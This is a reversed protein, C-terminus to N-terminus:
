EAMFKFLHGRFLLALNAPGDTVLHSLLWIADNATEPKKVHDLVTDYLADAGHKM